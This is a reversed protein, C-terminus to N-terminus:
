VLRKFAKQPFADLKNIVDRWYTSVDQDAFKACLIIGENFANSNGKLAVLATKIDPSFNPLGMMYQLLQDSPEGAQLSLLSAKFSIKELIQKSVKKEAKHLSKILVSSWENSHCLLFQYQSQLSNM